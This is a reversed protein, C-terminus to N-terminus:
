KHCDKCKKDKLDKHIKKVTDSLESPTFTNVENNRKILEKALPAVECSCLSLFISFFILFSKM